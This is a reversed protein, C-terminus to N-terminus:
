SSLSPLNPSRLGGLCSCRVGPRARAVPGLRCMSALSVVGWCQGLAGEAWGAAKCRAVHRGCTVLNSSQLHAAVLPPSPAARARATRRPLLLPPGAGGHPPAACMGPGRAARRQLWCPTANNRPTVTVIHFREPTDWSDQATRTPLYFPSICIVKMMMMMMMM